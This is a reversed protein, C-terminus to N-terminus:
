KEKERMKGYIILFLWIMDYVSQKSIEEVLCGLEYSILEKKWLVGVCSCLEPLNKAVKYCPNIRKEDADSLKDWHGKDCMNRGVNQVQGSWYDRSLNLSEREGRRVLGWWFKGDHGM